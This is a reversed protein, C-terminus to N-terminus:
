AQAAAPMPLVRIPVPFPLGDQERWWVPGKRGVMVQSIEFLSRKLPRTMRWTMTFREQDPEIVITDLTGVHDEREGRVPFVHVPAEFRPLVFRRLGDETLNTLTVTMDARSLPVQQDAPAFQFYRIDFDAPLFPFVEDRWHQDYTGAFAVRQPWGRGIPGFAMPEYRGAPWNVPVGTQETNPLPKGDLYANKLHKFYGRGVPNPLYVSPPLGEEDPTDTGGFAVDYGITLRTFPQPSSPRIGTVGAQWVRNGVAEFSKSMPGVSLGVRARTVARGGPAYASGILLVDCSAKRYAFDSEYRPASTGPNGSFIDAITLPVQEAHLKVEENGRPLAFTGKIVVVLLERGSPELGVTCDAAMRTANILEM